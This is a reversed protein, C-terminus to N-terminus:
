SSLPQVRLFAHVWRRTENRTLDKPSSPIHEGLWLTETVFLAIDSEPRISVEYRKFGDEIEHAIHFCVQRTLSVPEAM